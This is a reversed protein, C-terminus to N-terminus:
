LTQANHKPSRGWPRRSALLFKLNWSQDCGRRHRAALVGDCIVKLQAAGNGKRQWGRANISLACLPAWTPPLCKQYPCFPIFLLFSNFFRPDRFRYSFCYDITKHLCASLFSVTSFFVKYINTIFPPVSRSFFFIDWWVVQCFNLIYYAAALLHQGLHDICYITRRTDSLIHVCSWLFDSFISGM